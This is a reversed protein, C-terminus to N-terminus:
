RVASRQYDERLAATMAKLGLESLQQRLAPVRAAHDSLLSVQRALLAAFEGNLREQVKGAQEALQAEHDADPSERYQLAAEALSRLSRQVDIGFQPADALDNITRVATDSSAVSRLVDAILWELSQATELIANAQRTAAARQAEALAAPPHALARAHRLLEIHEYQLFDFHAVQGDIVRDMERAIGEMSQEVTDIASLYANHHVGPEPKEPASVAGGEAVSNVAAADAEGSRESRSGMGRGPGRMRMGMGMGMGRMGGMRNMSGMMRGDGLTHLFAVIDSVDQESLERGLQHEAMEDVAEELTEVSGDHFYPGTRAIDHMTPVKFVHLDQERATRDYVGNDAENAPRHEQYYPIAAGLQQYSNGGIGIGNHCSVCGVAQFRELGRQEQKNLPEGRGDLAELFASDSRTFMITQFYALADGLNERTVGDPYVSAFQAAYAEDASLMAEVEDLNHGMEIPSEIPGLAQEALTLARGDRFQRFNFVANFTTPTNLLGEADNIGIAVTRGDGGGRMGSHCTNCAETGDRSLRREHFLSFGLQLRDQEIEDPDIAPIPRFATEALAHDAAANISSPVGRAQTFARWADAVDTDAFTFASIAMLPVALFSRPMPIKM